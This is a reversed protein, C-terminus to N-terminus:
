IYIRSVMPKSHTEQLMPANWMSSIVSMMNCMAGQFWLVISIQQMATPPHVGVAIDDPAKQDLYSSHFLEFTSPSNEM